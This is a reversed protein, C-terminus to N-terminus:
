WAWGEFGPEGDEGGFEELWHQMEEPSSGDPKAAVDPPMEAAPAPRPHQLEELFDLCGQARAHGRQAAQRLRHDDSIVTLEGPQPASRILEEIRDDASEKTAFCVRIGHYEKETAAKAPAAAADFVVVLEGSSPARSLRLRDLLLMRAQHLRGRQGAPPALGWAHLLNYGDILYRM